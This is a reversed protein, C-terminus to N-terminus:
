LDIRHGDWAGLSWAALLVLGVVIGSFLVVHEVIELIAEVDIM